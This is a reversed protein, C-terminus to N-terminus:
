MQLQIGIEVVQDPPIHFFATASQANHSMFQFIRTRWRAMGPRKSRVLRERGLFFSVEELEFGLGKEGALALIYPVSPNEAFGFHAIIRYFGGELHHLEIKEERPVRPIRETVVVLMATEAHLVKNHRLNHALAPPIGNPNGTLFVAKGSVRQPPAAAISKRFDELSLTGAQLQAVLLARGKEWTMMLIFIAAAIVLPFWAGHLIKGINAAFFSLDVLLFLATPVGAALRSWGWRERTIVYFLVTAIVMTTTVAVGYAAALKSSSRFGLVLGITAIM